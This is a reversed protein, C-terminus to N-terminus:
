VHICVCGYVCASEEVAIEGLNLELEGSVVDNRTRSKMEVEVVSCGGVVAV